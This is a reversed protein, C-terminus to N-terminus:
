PSLVPNKGERQIKILKLRGNVLAVELIKMRTGNKITWVGPEPNLARVKREISNAKEVDRNEIAERLDKEDIYGDDTKFKKTYTAETENQRLPVIEKALFRPLTAALLKGGIDALAAELERYSRNEVDLKEAILISGHDMKEDLLYLTVGTQREGELIATQIPSSGRYKPLLSPHVGIAGREAIGIIEKPIIKAYAAVVFFEAKMTKLRAQIESLKEPQLIPIGHRQALLKTPPPTITHKRGVPRDPNCVIASPLMDAAILQELVGAAFTPTGFFIYNM